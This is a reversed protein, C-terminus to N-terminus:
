FSMEAPLACLQPQMLNHVERDGEWRIMRGGIRRSLSIRKSSFMREM